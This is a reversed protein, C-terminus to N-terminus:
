LLYLPIHSGIRSRYWAESKVVTIMRGAVTHPKEGRWRRSRVTFMRVLRATLWFRMVTNPPACFRGFMWMSSM